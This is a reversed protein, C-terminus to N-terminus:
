KVQIGQWCTWDSTQNKNPGPDTLFVLDGRGLGDLSVSFAHLGRDNINKFPDLDHRYLERHEGNDGAWEVIFTAGDTPNDNTYAGEQIGFRGTLTKADLPMAMVMRGPAHVQLVKEGFIEGINPPTFAKWELPPLNFGVSTFDTKSLMPARPARPVPQPSQIFPITADGSEPAAGTIEVGQWCAWDFSPNNLDGCGFMLHLTGGSLGTLPLDLTQVTRDAPETVPRLARRFLTRREGAPGHWEVTMDVGDTQDLAKAQLGYRAFVRQPAAGLPFVMESPPHVQVATYEGLIAAGPAILATISTPMTKFAGAERLLKASVVTAQTGASDGEVIPAIKSLPAPNGVAVDSWCTWDWSSDHAPGPDTRLLLTGGRPLDGLEASFTQVGRDASKHLPDLYRKFVVREEEGSKWVISFEAGDTANGNTYATRQFAFRGVVRTSGRPIQLAIESPAHAQVMPTGDVNVAILPIAAHATLPPAAFRGYRMIVHNSGTLMPQGGPGTSSIPLIELDRWTTWAWANTLEVTDKIVLTGAGLGHLDLTLTQLGRDAPQNLPDLKREFLTRVGAPTQWEVVVHAGATHAAGKYAADAIGYRARFSTAGAAINFVMESPAHILITQEGGTTAPGLPAAAALSMPLNRFGGATALLTEDKDDRRLPPVPLTDFQCTIDPEYCNRDEPAVKVVLSVVRACPLRNIFRIWDFQDRLVPNLLFGAAAMERLLRFTQTRGTNDTVELQLEAPKYFFSRLRGLLTPHVTLHAWLNQESVDGIAVVEGLRARRVPGPTPKFANDRDDPTCHHWLLYPGDEFDFAYNRVLALQLDADDLTPFRQDITKVRQLVWQPAQASEYHAANLAALRPTYASYGQPVPRPSLNLGNLLAVGQFHSLVDVTDTGVAKRTREMRNLRAAKDWEAQQEAHLHMIGTLDEIRQQIGSEFTVLARTLVMPFNLYIGLLCATGALTLASVQLGRLRETRGLILPYVLAVFVGHVFFNTMHGDARVLGHKWALYTAAFFVLGRAVTTHRPKASGTLALVGYLILGTVGSLAYIFASDPTPVGMTEGYGRSIELSNLLYVPLGLPNQGCLLWFLLIGGFFWGALRYADRRRGAWWADGCVALVIALALLCQTFKILSFVALLLATLIVRKNGPPNAGLLSVGAVLIFAMYLQETNSGLILLFFLCILIQRTLGFDRILRILAWAFGAAVALNWAVTLAFFHESYTQALLFGLPGNTFIFERGFQFHHKLVYGLMMRWSPDLDVEPPRASPIFSLFLLLFLLFRGFPQSEGPTASRPQVPTAPNTM